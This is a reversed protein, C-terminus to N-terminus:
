DDGSPRLPQRSLEFPVERVGGDRQKMALWIRLQDPGERAYTLGDFYLTAGEAKVLPFRVTEDQAEWARLDADFHKLELVLGPSDERITMIEYVAVEGDRTLRFVGVMGGGEPPLWVEDVVGGLGEGRWSGVLWGLEDVSLSEAAGGEDLRLTHDTSGQAAVPANSFAAVAVLAVVRACLARRPGTSDSGVGARYERSM